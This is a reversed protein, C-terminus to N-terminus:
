LSHHIVHRLLRSRPQKLFPRSADTEIAAAAPVAVTGERAIGETGEPIVATTRILLLMTLRKLEALLVAVLTPQIPMQAMSAQSSPALTSDGRRQPLKMRMKRDACCM